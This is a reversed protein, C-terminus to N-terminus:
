IFFNVLIIPIISLILTLFSGWELIALYCYKPRNYTEADVKVMKFWNKYQPNLILGFEFLILIIAVVFSAIQVGKVPTGNVFVFNDNSFFFIFLFNILIVLGVFVSTFIMHLTYNSLKVFTLINFAIYALTFIAFLTFSVIIDGNKEQVALAFFLVPAIMLLSALVQLGVYLYTSKNNRKYRNIEFPIIQLFNFKKAGTRNFGCIELYFLLGFCILGIALSVLFVINTM